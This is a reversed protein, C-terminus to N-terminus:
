RDIVCMSIAVLMEKDTLKRLKLGGGFFNIHYIRVVATPLITFFSFSVKAPMLHMYNWRMDPTKLM